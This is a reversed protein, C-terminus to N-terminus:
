RGGAHAASDVVGRALLVTIPGDPGRVEPRELRQRTARQFELALTDNGRWRPRVGVTTDNLYPWELVAVVDKKWHPLLAGHRVIFVDHYLGTTADGDDEVVVADLKGDPSPTRQKEPYKTPDGIWTCGSVLLVVATRSIRYL